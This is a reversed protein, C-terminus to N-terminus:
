RFIAQASHPKQTRAVKQQPANVSVWLLHQTQIKIHMGPQRLLEKGLDTLQHQVKATEGQQDSGGDRLLWTKSFFSLGESCLSFNPCAQPRIVNQQTFSILNPRASSLNNQPTLM